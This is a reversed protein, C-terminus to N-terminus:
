RNSDVIAQRAMHEIYLRDAEDAAAVDIADKTIDAVRRLAIKTLNLQIGYNKNVLIHTDVGTKQIQSLKIQTMANFIALIVTVVGAILAQWVLDSVGATQSSTVVASVAPAVDAAYILDM